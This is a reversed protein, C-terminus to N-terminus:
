GTPFNEVFFNSCFDEMKPFKPARNFNQVGTIEYRDSIQLQRDSFINCSGSGCSKKVLPPSKKTLM